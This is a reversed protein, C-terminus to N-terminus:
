ELVLPVVNPNAMLPVPVAYEVQSEPAVPNTSVHYSWVPLPRCAVWGTVLACGMKVFATLYISKLKFPPNMFIGSPVIGTPLEDYVMIWLELNRPFGFPLMSPAPLKSSLGAVVIANPLVGVCYRLKHDPLSIENLLLGLSLITYSVYLLVVRTLSIPTLFTELKSVYENVEGTFRLVDSYLLKIPLVAVVAM